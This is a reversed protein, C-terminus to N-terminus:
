EEGERLNVDPKKWMDIGGVEVVIYKNNIRKGEKRCQFMFDLAKDNDTFTYTKM